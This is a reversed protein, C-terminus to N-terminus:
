EILDLRSEDFSFYRNNRTRIFCVVGSQKYRCNYDEWPTMDVIIGTIGKKGLLDEMIKNTRVKDGIKFKM